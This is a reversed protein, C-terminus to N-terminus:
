HYSRALSYEVAAQALRVLSDALVAIATWLQPNYHDEGHYGHSEEVCVSSICLMSWLLSIM